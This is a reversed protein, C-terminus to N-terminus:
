VHRSTLASFREGVEPTSKIFPLEFFMYKENKILENTMVILGWPQPWQGILRQLLICTIQQRIESEEQDDLDKNFRELLIHMFYHTHANPYRLQDVISHLFFYRAEPSLEHVLMSLLAVDPTTVVFNPGGKLSSKSISYMGIYIVLSDILELDTSIAAFGVGPQTKKKGQVAHAIHAVADESPGSQLAQNIVDLLDVKKLPTEVDNMNEPIERIEEILDFKLPHQLPDPLKLIPSASLIINRMQTWHNPLSACLKTHNAALFGPFDHYIIFILKLVGRYIEKSVSSIQLPNLLESVYSLLNTMIEAVPKWGIQNSLGMIVPLFNRHSLLSFYAFLFGPFYSPRIELFTNAFALMIKQYERESIKFSWSNFESLLNVFLRFFVRQNFNEGRMVHHHNMVLVLLSLATKVYAAKDSQVEWEEERRIVLMAIFKALADIYIYAGSINGNNLLHQEFRDVSIDLSLRLFICLDDRNNILQKNYMQSIFQVTAKESVNWNNCLHVWEEFVYDMQDRRSNQNEDTNRSTDQTIGSATLKNKLQQGIELSPIEEAWQWAAELSSALDSFLAIPRDNLLVADVLLSLFKLSEERRQFIAKSIDSDIRQWDVMEAKILSVTLPVRWFNEGPQHAIMLAVRSAIRGGNRCINDLVHILCEIMLGHDTGGFLLTCLQDVIFIDLADPLQATRIILSYLADLVDLVPHPRVLDTFHEESTESIVRELEILTKQVREILTRPDPLLAAIRGNGLASNNQAYPQQQNNVHSMAQPEAVSPLTSIAPYQEQLVDNTMSKTTESAPPVHATGTISPPLRSRAFDDYIAIQDQNLGNMSPQLKYPNPITLAWRSLSLDMYPSDPRTMKHVRRAELEPEIIEEIEPVAREEAKKEVQSCALDLNSNVCMIITGEPLGQPLEGSLARIYNTMSARLPEKSTVLALSGATKKVMLIAASRVKAENPETAFDKKIMQATSIAAITVSREVVPSIIEYVARTTASRVIEQLQAQNVMENAPPYVLMPGLDPISSTIEHSSFRAGAMDNSSLNELREVGGLGMLSEATEEASPMRNMIENSPEITKPDISLEGFLVEIEFKLNLKLDAGLYLERLARVVDMVWPNPPKFITSEKGQGLIKCVFPIVILLRNTQYAETLLQKFAINTYKIPKDRALTLSGLWAALNKLHAREAAGNPSLTAESNLSQFASIYTERLIEAWLTKKGFLKLLNLYLKHFNPETKARHSVLHGAFWQHNQDEIIARLETFKKELNEATMNNLVFLIRDQTSGDPDEYTFPSPDVHLSKFPRASLSTVLMEDINGNSISDGNVHYNLPQDEQQSRVVEEAKKWAETGQLYPIQLLKICFGPWERLRSLLQMLAQLGFKYMSEDPTHDRVAELIMGLGIELPLNEILRRSIIGGFLVATTALAELPYTGYLAFEDFLGHIMCAFVDQDSPDRSWKYAELADVVNRVQLDDSYMRKYHEEMKENAATPLFNAEAGNADIIDNFGENYNILRPYATICHREVSIWDHAPSKPLVKELVNLLAAVTKVPLMVSSLEGTRQFSLEHSAKIDLFKRLSQAFEPIRADTVNKKWEDLDLLGRAHAIAALDLGFGNHMSTLDNLWKHRFAHDLIMPLRLPTKGHADVLRQAVWGCDKRWLSELVFDRHPDAQTLYRDFLGLLTDNALAPWPKPVGFASVMFIDLKPLVVQAFLRKAEPTESASTEHLAAHFLAELAAVSILPDTVAYAARKQTAPSSNAYEELSFTTRLGPITTADLESPILTAYAAIFSLQTETHRWKGGWLRQIDLVGDVALPYFAKYLSLFQQQTIRLDQHDFHTIVQSWDFTSPVERLLSQILIETSVKHTKSIVSYILLSSVQNESLLQKNNRLHEVCTDQDTTLASGIRHAYCTLSNKDSLLKLLYLAALVPVPPTHEFERSDYRFQIALALENRAKQDFCPPNTQILRDILTAVFEPELSDNNKQRALIQLFQSYNNSVIADSKAKLDPKSGIKFALALITKELADLKFHEMFTSLNFDRFIDENAMEISEAIKRSQGVDHSIKRIETVLIPYNGPTTVQRNIGPFIQHANGVVLRSFYKQFVEMGHEDILKRLQEAQQEWKTRDRDEKITSLLVFVQAVVINTLSSSSTPSNTNPSAATFPSHHSGHPSHGVGTVITQLIEKVM